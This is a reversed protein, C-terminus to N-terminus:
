CLDETLPPSFKYTLPIVIHKIKLSFNRFIKYNKIDPRLDSDTVNYVSTSMNTKLRRKLGDGAPSM